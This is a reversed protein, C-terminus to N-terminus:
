RQLLIRPTCRRDDRYIAVCEMCQFCEAYDVTGRRDIARYECGFRCTQCPKGCEARREIWDLRRARGMLALAGGLPCLYRCFPKHVLAAALVLGAAYVVFPWHRVFALTIATKFPEIEVLWDAWAPRLCAAALIAALAVYKVRRLWRDVAEPVGRPRIRLLRGATAALEQLAGFPCLWGCFTGRGWLVLSVLVFAWLVTSIPDYLFFGWGRGQLASQLLAVLNVISLQGQAAYGIFGVTFLLFAPRFAHLWASDAVLRARTALAWGLLALAAVLLALEGARARWTATWGRDDTAGAILYRDPVGVRLPFERTIREPFLAGHSRTVRLALDFPQGPDLGSAAIVRFAKWAGIAPMGGAVLNADLDLDRMEIPLGGQRLALREPVAGRVFDEGVFADPASMVLLVHDGDRIRANMQAWGRADLLNRGAEPVTALAVYLDVRVGDRAGDLPSGGSAAIGGAPAPAEDAVGTGVFAQQVERAQLEFPRVLGLAVLGAWDHPAFPLDTRVHAVQDPDKGGAFGLKARAVKLAAALLTQNIIRVSATAKAVGDIRVEVGTTASGKTGPAGLRISQRLSLGPYQAVFRFLPAEGLGDVFVPEHQSLVRADLFTGDPDIAILLDVPTGSFGPIPALDISEFVYGVLQTGPGNQKFIPWVPLAPDREGLLLPSPFLRELAPRDLVGATAAPALSALLLALLTAWGRALRRLAQGPRDFAA